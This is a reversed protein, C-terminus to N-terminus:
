LGKQECARRNAVGEKRLGKKECDDRSMMEVNGVRRSIAYFDGLVRMSIAYFM